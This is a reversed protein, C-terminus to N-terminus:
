GSREPPEPAAGENLWNDNDPEPILPVRPTPFPPVPVAVAKM